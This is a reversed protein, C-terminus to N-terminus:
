LPKSASKSDRQNNDKRRLQVWLSYLFLIVSLGMFATLYEAVLPKKYSDVFLGEGIEVTVTKPHLGHDSEGAVSVTWTGAKDPLFSVFGNKDTRGTKHPITEDPGFIEYTSYSAPDTQTYFFRVSVGKEDVRYHMGHASATAAPFLLCLLLALIISRASM